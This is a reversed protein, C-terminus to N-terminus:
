EKLAMKWHEFIESQCRETVEPSNGGPTANCTLKVLTM